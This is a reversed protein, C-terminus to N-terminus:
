IYYIHVIGADGTANATLTLGAAVVTRYTEDIDVARSLADIVAMVVATVTIDNTGDSVTVSGSASAATGLATVDIIKSGVPISTDVVPTGAGHSGTPVVIEKVKLVGGIASEGDQDFPRFEIYTHTGAGGGEETCFGVPVSGAVPTARLEGPAGAGGSLFYILQGVVFSDTIEIQSTRIKRREEINIKGSAGNAIGNYERVEGVYRGENVIERNTYARGSTNIITVQNDSETVESWNYANVKAEAM